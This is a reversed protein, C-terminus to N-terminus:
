GGDHFSWGWIGAVGNATAHFCLNPFSNLRTQAAAQIGIPEALLRATGGRWSSVTAQRRRLPELRTCVHSAMLTTPWLRWWSPHGPCAVHIPGVVRAVAEQRIPSADSTAHISGHNTPRPQLSNREVAYPCVVARDDVQESKYGQYSPGLRSLDTHIRSLTAICSCCTRLLSPWLATKTLLEKTCSADKTRKMPGVGSRSKSSAQNVRQTANGPRRSRRQRCSTSPHPPLPSRHRVRTDVPLSATRSAVRQAAEDWDRM